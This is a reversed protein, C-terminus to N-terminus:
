LQNRRIPQLRSGGAQDQESHDLKNKFVWKTGIISREKPRPVLHCVKNREFQHLEDQMATVWDSDM